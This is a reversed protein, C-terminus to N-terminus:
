KSLHGHPGHSMVHSYIGHCHFNQGFLLDLCVPSLLYVPKATIYWRQDTQCLDLHIQWRGYLSSVTGTIYICLSTCLNNFFFFMLRSSSIERVHWWLQMSTQGLAKHATWHLCRNQIGLTPWLSFGDNTLFITTAPTWQKFFPYSLSIYSMSWLM